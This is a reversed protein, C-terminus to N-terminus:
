LALYDYTGPIESCQFISAVSLILVSSKEPTRYQSSSAKIIYSQLFLLFYFNSLLFLVYYYMSYSEAVYVDLITRM